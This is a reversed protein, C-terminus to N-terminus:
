FRQDALGLGMSSQAPVGGRLHAEIVRRCAEVAGTDRLGNAADLVSWATDIMTRDPTASNLRAMIIM